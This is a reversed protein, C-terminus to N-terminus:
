KTTQVTQGPHHFLQGPALHWGTRQLGEHQGASNAVVRWGEQVLQACSSLDDPSPVARDGARVSPHRQVQGALGVEGQGLGDVELFGRQMSGNEIGERGAAGPEEPLQVLCGDSVVYAAACRGGEPM